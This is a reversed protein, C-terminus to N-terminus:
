GGVVFLVGLMGVGHFIVALVVLLVVYMVWVAYGAPRGGVPVV